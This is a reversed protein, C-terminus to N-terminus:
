EEELQGTEEATECRQNLAVVQLADHQSGARQTRKSPSELPGTLSASYWFPNLPESDLIDPAPPPPGPHQSGPNM